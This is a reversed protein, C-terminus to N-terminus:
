LGIAPLDPAADAAILGEFRPDDMIEVDRRIAAFGARLYFGVARPHDFTCTTLWVRAIDARWARALAHRMLGHAAGSGIEAEVVGFFAIKCVRPTRFDLEAFGVDAGDRALAHIEVRADDLIDGLDVASMALRSVWMWRAGVARFLALYWDHAPREVRRIALGPEPAAPAFAPARRMELTTVVAALCGPAVAHLGPRLLTM